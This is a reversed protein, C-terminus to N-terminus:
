KSSVRHHQSCPLFLSSFEDSVKIPSPLSPLSLPYTRREKEKKREKKKKLSPWL